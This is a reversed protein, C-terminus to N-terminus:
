SYKEPLYSIKQICQVLQLIALDITEIDMLHLHLEDNESSFKVSFGDLIRQFDLRIRDNKRFDFSIM